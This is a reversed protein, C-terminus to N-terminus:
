SKLDVKRVRNGFTRRRSRVRTLNLESPVLANMGPTLKKHATTRERNIKIDFRRRGFRLADISWAGPGVMAMGAAMVALLLHVWQGNRGSFSLSVAICLEDIAILTATVPTWFGSILVSGGIISLLELSNAIPETAGALVYLVGLCILAIGVGIRLLLLGYGPWGDPFTSFLRQVVLEPKL